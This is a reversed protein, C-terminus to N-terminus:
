GVVTKGSFVSLTGGREALFARQAASLEVQPLRNM